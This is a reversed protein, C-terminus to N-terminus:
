NEKQLLKYLEMAASTMCRDCLIDNDCPRNGYEDVHCDCYSDLFEEWLM